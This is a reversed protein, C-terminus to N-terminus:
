EIVKGRADIQTHIEEIAEGVGAFGDDVKQELKDIKETLRAETQSVTASVFQKLDDLQDDDVPIMKDYRPPDPQM